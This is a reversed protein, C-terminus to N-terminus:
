KVIMKQTVVQGDVEMAVIYIGANLGQVSVTGSVNTEVQVVQGVINTIVLQDVVDAGDITIKGDLVPNPYISVDADLVESVSAEDQSISKAGIHIMANGLPTCWSHNDPDNHTLRGVQKGDVIDVDKWVFDLELTDDTTPITDWNMWKDWTLAMEWRYDFDDAANSDIKAAIELSRNMLVELNLGIGVDGPIGWDYHSAEAHSFDTIINHARPFTWKRDGDKKWYWNKWDADGDHGAVTGTDNGGYDMRCPFELHDGGATNLTDDGTVEALIFLNFDNYMLRVQATADDDDDFTTMVGGDEYESIKDLPLTLVEANDWIADVKGDITPAQVESDDMIGPISSEQQDIAPSPASCWGNPNQANVAAFAVAMSLFLLYIRKMIMANLNSM